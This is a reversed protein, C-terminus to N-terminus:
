AMECIENQQRNSDRVADGAASKVTCVATLHCLFLQWKGTFMNVIEPLSNKQMNLLHATQTQKHTFTLSNANHATVDVM